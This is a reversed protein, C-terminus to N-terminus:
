CITDETTECSMWSRRSSIARSSTAITSNMKLNFFFLWEAFCELIYIIINLNEGKLSIIKRLFCLASLVLFTHRSRMLVLIRRLLDRNLIYNNIHYTLHEVCFSLLELILGLLQVTPYDEKTPRDGTTNSLLPTVLVHMSHKYFFNLFDAKESKNISALMNEPDLLLRLIGSLQVAGGLEPDSDCM